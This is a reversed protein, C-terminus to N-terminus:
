FASLYKNNSQRDTKLTKKSSLNRYKSIRSNIKEKRKKTKTSVPKNWKLDIVM